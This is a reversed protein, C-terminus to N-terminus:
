GDDIELRAVQPDHDSAQDFFEANVHVSDYEAHKRLARTVLIQDLTQSNGEFVYSYREDGDLTEMLNRMPASEVIDLTRSFEFDNLDGMVIVRADRDLELAQAVFARVVEAQQHRQPETVREPPQFRGFLPQDGGKSNFHNAVAFVTEGRWRFEGALPKRSATFAPNLPDLRGPSFTLEPGSAGDAVETSSISTGGPRDVFELGRDARFLFGVRINGGPQGGDRDDVPDIQRFEYAPGGAAAVAAIFREWTLTADTVTTNAPGDDDQVEELAVLDPSRMNEVLITALREFKADTDRLSLNEVNMSGTSLQDRKPRTTVEPRLGNDIRAPSGTLLYKFNGFSYDVIARVPGQLGDGVNADPPEAMGDDLIFREPNFDDPRIIVGDRESRPSAAGDAVVPLEDFGSTPGVVTPKGIEVLMGELSEHFDIGDEWPDFFPNLEVDGTSDDDIFRLPPQIGARGLLTPEVSGTGAPTVTPNTIETTTLNDPDNGPRFEEVLGDVLVAQGIAPRGGRFVFIGESTRCDRDPEVDQMWFGNSRVATVVGPVGAVTKGEFPSRHGAGQVDHIRLGERGQLFFSVTEDGAMADPPDDADADGVADGEVTLTCQEGRPLDEAPDLTYTTQDGASVALAFSRGDTCALAFGGTAVTVPESFTVAISSSPAVGFEGGDPDTSAVSPAEDGAPDDSSNQPHSAKPGDFDAANDDTDLTGGARREFGNDASAGPFSLGTGERCQDQGADQSAVGDVAVGAANAIRVGGDDSIGTGYTQDGPVTGSYPGSANSNTLLYSGGAPITTSAPLTARNSPNGPATAACGQLLWGSVDVSAGSINRLEVFEDNGGAPGRTRLESIVITTSAAPAAAPLALLAGAALVAALLRRSM